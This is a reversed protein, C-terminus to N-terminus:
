LASGIDRQIWTYQTGKGAERDKDGSSKDKNEEDKERGKDCEDKEADRYSLKNNILSHLSIIARVLACVYMVELSDNNWM